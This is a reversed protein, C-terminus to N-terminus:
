MGPQLRIVEWINRGNRATKARLDAIVQEAIDGPLNLNLIGMQDNTHVGIDRGAPLGWKAEQVLTGLRKDFEPSGLPFIEGTQSDRAGEESRVLNVSEPRIWANVYVNEM